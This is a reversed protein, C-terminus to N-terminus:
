QGRRRITAEATSEKLADTTRTLAPIVEDTTFTELRDGRDRERILEARPVWRGTGLMFVMYSLAGTGGAAPVLKLFETLDVANADAM